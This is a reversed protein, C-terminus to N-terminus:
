SNRLIPPCMAESPAVTQSLGIPLSQYQYIMSVGSNVIDNDIQIPITGHKLQVDAESVKVFPINVNKWIKFNRMCDPFSMKRLKFHTIVGVRGM